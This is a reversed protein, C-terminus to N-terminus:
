NEEPQVEYEPRLTDLTLTGEIWTYAGELYYRSPVMEAVLELDQAMHFSIFEKSATLLVQAALPNSDIKAQCEEKSYAAEGHTVPACWFMDVNQMWTQIQRRVEKDARKMDNSLLEAPTIESPTTEFKSM